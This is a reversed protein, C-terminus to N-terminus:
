AEGNAMESFTQMTRANVPDTGTFEAFRRVAVDCYLPDIDIGFCRINMKEAAIVQTGSGCFPEFAIDGSKAYAGFMEMCLAVSFVAPHKGGKVAGHHRGVRVVSDPIKHTSLFKAGSSVNKITGDKGRLGADGTKDKINEPKKDHTKNAQRPQRNFHFIFEHSPALRGNWDGPLGPGQDWVYWGFRRWGQARMWDIWGDWYPIWESDRHVLGLNVLVQAGNKVPAAAFVGQMLGDWDGVKEKAAGYDRQQSYPPSTFCVDAHAGDMLRDVADVSTSDGCM